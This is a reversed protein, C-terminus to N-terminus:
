RRLAAVFLALWGAMLLMGGMPAVRGLSHGSLAGYWVAGCFLLLGLVFLGGALHPFLGGREAMLGAALLALAHWGQMTLANQV